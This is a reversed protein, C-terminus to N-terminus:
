KIVAFLGTASFVKDAGTEGRVSWRYAKGTKIASIDLMVPPTATNRAFLEGTDNAKAESISFHYEEAGEVPKWSFQLRGDSTKEVNLGADTEGIRRGADSFGFSPGSQLPKEYITFLGGSDLDIIERPGGRNWFVMLVLLCVALSYAPAPSTFFRRVKIALSLKPPDKRAVKKPAVALIFKDPTAPIHFAGEAMKVSSHTFFAAREFCLDCGDTHSSYEAFESEPLRGGLFDGMLETPVCKDTLEFPALNDPIEFLASRYTNFSILRSRCLPCSNLHGQIIKREEDEVPEGSFVLLDALKLHTM